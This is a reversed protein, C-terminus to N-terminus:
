NLIRKYRRQTTRMSSATSQNHCPRHFISYDSARTELIVHQYMPPLLDWGKTKRNAKRQAAVFPCFSEVNQLRTAVDSLFGTLALHYQPSTAPSTALPTINLSSWKKFCDRVYKDARLYLPVAVVRTAKLAFALLLDLVNDCDFATADTEQRAAFKM